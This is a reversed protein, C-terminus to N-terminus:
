ARSRLMGALDVTTTTPTAGQGIDGRPTRAALHPKRALLDDIAANLAEDDALHADDYALDSPDALRGTAATLAAHLRHALDDRDKAKVRAEAAEHRLREVYGRPFTQPDEEPIPDPQQEVETTPEAEEVPAETTPTESM